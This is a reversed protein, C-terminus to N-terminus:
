SGDRAFVIGFGGVGCFGGEFAYTLEGFGGSM